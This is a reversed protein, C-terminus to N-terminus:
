GGRGQPHRIKELMALVAPGPRPTLLSVLILSAFGASIGFIGAAVPEIGFWSSAMSGGFFPHTRIVYTLTLGLGVLMAVVAGWKNARRWFVGCVLAPFFSAGALSFAVGVMFLINDPRSAAVWGALGATALLLFKAVVLRRQASAEPALIKYYLDHSLANAITLLMQNAATLSAALGGVAVLGTMVYPLGAIEPAALVLMDPNIVLEALQIIGDHNMDQVQLLGLRGWSGVWSPLHAVSSGVLESVILWKAFVAYAPATLYIVVIFLLGWAVSRRAEVVGPTAYYRMLVHPLAATGVMLCIVLALFNLRSTASFGGDDGKFVAAQPRPARARALDDERARSWVQRAEAENRPLNRYAREAAAVDRAPANGMRADQAKRSLSEREADLSAPLGAVRAAYDDARQGYQRRVEVERPDDLLVEERAALQEMISAYAIQPVPVGTAKYAMVGVPLLFALALVLYQAVQTWILARMGGLFAAVLIGGLGIFVGLEFDIGIFHSTILGVGYIQAVAYSFSALITALVGIMRALNGGYREALFDTITFQGFRRLYPALLLAVLCYGGTWGMVYALGQFGSVYLTGALGLFAAASLWDGAAAMGMALAPVRRGAVYFESVNATRNIAGIGAYYAFVAFLFINGLWRQSLGALEALGLVLMFSLFGSVYFAYRKGLRGVRPFAFM